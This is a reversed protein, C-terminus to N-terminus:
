GLPRRAPGLASRAGCGAAAWRAGPDRARRGCRERVRDRDALHVALLEEYRHLLHTVTREAVRVGCGVLHRHIEPVSSHAAYRLRGVLAIVDLGFTSRPLAWGGEEEPHYAQHYLPCARNQCRRIALTLGVVETLTSITRKKHYAVWLAGGCAVCQTRQAEVAQTITPTPSHRRRAM